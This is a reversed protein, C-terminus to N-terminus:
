DLEDFISGQGPLDGPTPRADPRHRDLRSFAQLYASALAAKELGGDDLQACLKRLHFVLPLHAPTIWHQEDLYEAFMDSYTEARQVTEQM